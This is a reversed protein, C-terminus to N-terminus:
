RHFLLVNRYGISRESTLQIKNGPWEAKAIFDDLSSQELVSRQAQGEAVGSANYGAQQAGRKRRDNTLSNGLGGGTKKRTMATARAPLSFYAFHSYSNCPIAIEFYLGLPGLHCIGYFRLVMGHYHFGATNRDMEIGFFSYLRLM